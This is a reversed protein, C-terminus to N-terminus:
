EREFAQEIPLDLQNKPLGSWWTVELGFMGAYSTLPDGPLARALLMPTVAWGGSRGRAWPFWDYSLGLTYAAGYAGRVEEEDHRTRTASVVGLGVVGHLSLNGVLVMQGGLGLGILSSREGERSGSGVDLQFGLGFRRTFLQGLRVTVTYGPWFGLKDGDDDIHQVAALLGGAVYYGQRPRPEELEQAGATRAGAFLLAVVLMATRVSM